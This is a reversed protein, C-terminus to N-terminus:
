ADARLPLGALLNQPKIRVVREGDMALLLSVEEALGPATLRYLALLNDAEAPAEGQWLANGIRTAHADLGVFWRWDRTEIRAVPEITAALGLLHALWLRIVEALAARAAALDLVMDHSDSRGWYSAANEENLVDFETAAPPALMAILPVAQRRQEAAEVAEADALLVRGQHVTARQPRFFMEGARVVMADECADLANRLIVHTLQAFILPPIRGVGDRVMGLYAAEISPAALLRARLELFVEWNERADADAIAAVEAPAVARLPEDFLSAHLAREADCAEEPPLLEPRALYARFLDGTAVLLGRADRDLLLHGSGVWFEHGRRTM